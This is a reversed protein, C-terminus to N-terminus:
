RAEAGCTFRGLHPFAEDPVERDVVVVCTGHDGEATLRAGMAIGRLLVEGDLGVLFRESGSNVTVASGPPLPAGDKRYIALLASRTTNIPFNIVVGSRFRPAVIASVTEVDADIPLDRPEIRIRNAEYPRLNHILVRGDSDTRGIVRNESYVRVNPQGDISAVGFSSDIRRSVFLDGDAIAIGGVANLRAGEDEDVKSGEASFRGYRSTHSLQARARTFDNDSVSLRTGFGGELPPEAHAQVTKLLKQGKAAQVQGSVTSRPGLPITLNVSVIAEDSRGYTKLGHVSLSGISRLGVSYSGSILHEDETGDFSRFVYGSSLSGFRDLPVGINIRAEADSSRVTDEVGFDTYDGPTLRGFVSFSVDRAAREFGLQILGGSSDDELSSALSSNVVGFDLVPLTASVGFAQREADLESHIEGTLWDTYGRRYTGSFFPTDEYDNSELGFDERLFGTEFSFDSLDQRLLRPSTYYSQSIVTERGLVDTVVATVEGAGTVVPLDQISFPGSPLEDSFRQSDNVFVDISSPLAADGSLDITPFTIFGPQTAFNTGFQLGGFRVPRGWAGGRSISDGWRVSLRDDPFDRTITTDLRVYDLDGYVDRLVQTSTGVFAGAFAGLEFVGGLTYPATELHESLVDYNFFGGYDAATPALYGATGGRVVTSLMHEPPVELHLVQTREDIRYSTGPPASLPYYRGGEHSLAPVDPLRIRLREFFEPALHIKEDEIVVPAVVGTTMENVTIALLRLEAAVAFNPYIV